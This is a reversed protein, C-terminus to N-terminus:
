TEISARLIDFDSKYILVPCGPLVVCISSHYIRILNKGVVMNGIWGAIGFKM